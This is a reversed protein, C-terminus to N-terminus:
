TGSNFALNLLLGTGFHVFLFAGAILCAQKIEVGFFYSVAVGIIAASVTLGAILGGWMGLLAALVMVVLLTGLAALFSFAIGWLLSVEEDCLWKLMGMLVLTDLLLLLM